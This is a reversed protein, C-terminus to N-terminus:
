LERRPSWEIRLDEAIALMARDAVRQLPDIRAVTSNNVFVLANSSARIRFLVGNGSAYGGSRPLRELESSIAPRIGLVGLGPIEKIVEPARPQPLVPSDIALGRRYERFHLTDFVEVMRETETGVLSTVLCGDRGEWAGITLDRPGGTATPLRVTAVRLTGGKLSYDEMETVQVTPFSSKVTEEVRASHGAPSISFPHGKMLSPVIAWGTATANTSLDADAEISVISGDIALHEAKM